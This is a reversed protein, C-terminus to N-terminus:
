HGSVTRAACNLAIVSARALSEFLREACGIAAPLGFEACRIAMHSNAGGYKTILGAIDYSFIWDFGPDASEILVLRGDIGRPEHATLRRPPATVSKGTIFTPQGLPLRVVDVDAVERILHPLRIARTVAHAERERAVRERLAGGDSTSFIADIPLFSVDDRSLGLGEGWRALAALADSVARTFAFKAQERAKVAAAVYGLLDAASLGYSMEGLLAEIAARQRATARFPEPEPSAARGGHGLYLDPREDYRWSLIDYTGPRLHGYRALFAAQELTGEAVAAINRILESAVTDVGRMFRDRDADSLVGRAVLSRLFLVGIFGHRALRSFPLTGLRRCDELLRRM